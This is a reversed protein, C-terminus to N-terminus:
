QRIASAIGDPTLNCTLMVVEQLFECNKCLHLLLSSNNINYFAHGSLNIKRLKPLAISM